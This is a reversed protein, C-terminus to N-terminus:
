RRDESRDAGEAIFWLDLQADRVLARMAEEAAEGDGAVVLDRIRRHSEVARSHDGLAEFAVRDRLRHIPEIVTSLWTLLENGTARVISRHFLLDGEVYQELEGGPGELLALGRDLMEIDEESRRRAALRAAVPELLQRVETLESVLRETPMRAIRWSMVDRDLLNWDSRETVFTGVRPRSALLGKGVLVRVAERVVTRSVGRDRELAVLDILAGSEFEDNVIASGLERVLEGHLGRGASSESM